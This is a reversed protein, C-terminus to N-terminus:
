CSSAHNAPADEELDPETVPPRVSTIGESIAQLLALQGQARAPAPAPAPLMYGIYVLANTLKLASSAHYYASAREQLCDGILLVPPLAYHDANEDLHEQVFSLNYAVVYRGALTRTFEQWVETLPPAHAIDEFTLGTYRTNPQSRERQPQIVQDFLMTGRGDAVVLRLIDATHAIGTTELVVFVLNPFRLVAEAWHVQELPPLPSLARLRSQLQKLHEALSVLMQQSQKRRVLREELDLRGTVAPMREEQTLRHELFTLTTNFDITM